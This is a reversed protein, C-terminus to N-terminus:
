QLELNFAYECNILVNAILTFIKSVHSIMTIVLNKLIISWSHDIILPKNTIPKKPHKGYEPVNCKMFLCRVLIALHRRNKM